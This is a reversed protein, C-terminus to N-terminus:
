LSYGTYVYNMIYLTFVYIWTDCLTRANRAKKYLQWSEPDKKDKYKHWAKKKAKSVINIERSWWPPKKNNTYKKKPIHREIMGTLRDHFIDWMNQTNKNEFDKVWDIEM